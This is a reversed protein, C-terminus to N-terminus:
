LLKNPKSNCVCLPKTYNIAYMCTHCMGGSKVATLCFADIILEDTDWLRLFMIPIDCCDTPTNNSNTFVGDFTQIPIVSMLIHM